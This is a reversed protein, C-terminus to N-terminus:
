RLAEILDAKSKHRITVGEAKALEKLENYTMEELEIGEDKAKPPAQEAEVEQGEPPGNEGQGERKAQRGYGAAEMKRIVEEDDTEFEGNVFKCLRTNNEGDWVIGSGYFKMKLKM